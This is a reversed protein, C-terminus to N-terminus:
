EKNEQSWKQYWESIVPSPAVNMEEKLIATLMRYQRHVMLHSDMAAYAKMLAYHAEEVQPHRNCVEQYKEVAKEQQDHAAYWEAMQFMTRIWLMRLRFRENEAWLYEYEELYDGIYLGMMREYEAITDESVPRQKQILTEWEEADLQIHELQLLYGDAANTLQFRDHFPELTKRIHYITTYLQSYAKNPDYEPWLLEALVSKRVLHGRNHLLYLFLEQAKSTRWRLPTFHNPESEIMVQQFMKMQITRAKAPLPDTQVALGAAAELREQIRQMTIALREGGVPKMLYDLANLEFAKIAYGDYATCFVVNLKPKSELIREALEIGNIEPLHIDLFVVDAEHELIFDIFAQPDIFKGVIEINAIKQLQHELYNLALKEDDLLVIKM